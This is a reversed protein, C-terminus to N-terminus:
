IGAPDSVFLNPLEQLAETPTKGKPALYLLGILGGIGSTSVVDIPIGEKLFGLMVGSMLTM